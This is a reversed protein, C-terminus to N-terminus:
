PGGLVRSWDVPGEAFRRQLMSLSWANGEAFAARMAQHDPTDRYGIGYMVVRTHDEDVEEFVTVSFLEPLLHTWAFGPPAKETQLVLMREPLHALYRLRINGTEGVSAGPDYSSEWTGGLGFEVHAFPASWSMVGESTTFARWVEPRPAPVVVSQAYVTEGSATTYQLQEVEQAALGGPGLFVTVATLAILTRVTM